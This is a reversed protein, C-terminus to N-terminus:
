SPTPGYGRRRPGGYEGIMTFVLICNTSPAARTRAAISSPKSYSTARTSVASPSAAEDFRRKALVPELRQVQAFPASSGLAQQPGSGVQTVAVDALEGSDM